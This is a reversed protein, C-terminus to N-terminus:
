YMKRTQLRFSCGVLYKATKLAPNLGLMADVVVSPTIAYFFGTNLPTWGHEMANGGPYSHVGELFFTSRDSLALAHSHSFFSFAAADTLPRQHGLNWGLTYDGLSHEGSLVSRFGQWGVPRIHNIWALRNKDSRLIVWKAGLEVGGPHILTSRVEVKEALRLRIMGSWETPKAPLSAGTELHVFGRGVLNPSETYDPRDISFPQANLPLTSWCVM